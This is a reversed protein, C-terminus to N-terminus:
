RTPVRQKLEESWNVVVRMTLTNGAAGPSASGAPAVVGILRGDPLLDYVRPEPSLREGTVTAPFRIPTGFTISGAGSVGVAAMLRATTSALFVLEKGDPTWVPHFDVLQRPAQFIAGTVPFPQVYIGRNSAAVDDSSTFTYALWQGNPSFVSGLPERSVVDGFASVRRDAFAFISLRYELGQPGIRRVAFSLFRGDPSWSEPVHREDGSSTTLREPSGTGDAPQRYIGSEGGRDSQFAVWRGDPSWVPYRNEGVLTLRQSASRGDLAYIWVIAEKGDDTGLAIRRGDPAARVHAFSAPPLPLATTAGNRDGIAILRDSRAAGTAGPVYVLSGSRSVSMQVPGTSARLIGDVVAVPDGKIANAVPDFAVAFLIAGSAYLLQGSPLLRADSGGDILVRREGTAISQIVIQAHEWRTSPPDASKGVSILLHQGDPLVQPSMFAEGPQPRALTEISGDAPNCRMVGDAMGLLIGDPNWAITNPPPVACVRLATGGRPSIRKIAGENGSHFALWAGDPSYTPSSALRGVNAAPIVTPEFANLPRVLLQSETIYALERGDPSLTMMRRALTLVQGDPLPFEFRTVPPPSATPQPMFTTALVGLAAGVALGAVAVLPIRSRSAAMPPSPTTTPAAAAVAAPDDLVYRVASMSGIRRRPDRDLCRKLLTTISPPLAPLANWDPDGRLIAAMTDSVDEGVFARLGTLMEYFVCGFAWVDARKDVTRGKAQEPAMYAATGLIMGQLTMAPTTITPSDLVPASSGGAAAGPKALGFDLVKVTGDGRLKINAPKLDRHIIGADHAAELAEAIQRAVAVAEDFPLAGRALREALDEGEVLEMVLARTRGAEEFGHIHAINPHNLAALTKAEREFRMLRDADAAFADPLIKLAVDRGLKTDRARYVEGMGGAGLPAVVEYPGIRTGSSLAM